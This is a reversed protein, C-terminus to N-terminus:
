RLRMFFTPGLDNRSFEIQDKVRVIGSGPDKAKQLWHTALSPNLVHQLVLYEVGRSGLEQTLRRLFGQRQLSPHLAISELAPCSKTAGPPAITPRRFHLCGLPRFRAGHPNELRFDMPTRRLRGSFIDVVFDACLGAQRAIYDEISFKSWVRKTYRRALARDKKDLRM